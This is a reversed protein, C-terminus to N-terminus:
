VFKRPRGFRALKARNWSGLREEARDAPGRAYRSMVVARLKGSMAPACGDEAAAHDCPPSDGFLQVTNRPRHQQPQPCGREPPLATISM